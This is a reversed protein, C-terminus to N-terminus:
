SVPWRDKTRDLLQRYVAEARSLEDLAARDLGGLVSEATGRQASPRPVVSEFVEPDAVKRADEDIRAKVRADSEPTKEFIQFSTGFRENCERIASGFDGTTRDFPSLVVHDLLPLIHEYFRRYERVVVAAPIIDAFQMVSALPGRPERVVIIAPIGRRVAMQAFHYSHGHTSIPVGPGNAEIFASRAYSNGSRPYGDIVLRTQSTIRSIALNPDIRTMLQSTGPTDILRQRLQYRASPPAIRRVITKLKPASRPQWEQQNDSQAM